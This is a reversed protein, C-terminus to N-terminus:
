DPWPLWLWYYTVFYLISDEIIKPYMWLIFINSLDNILGLSCKCFLSSHPHSNLPLLIYPRSFTGISPVKEVPKKLEVQYHETNNKETQLYTCQLLINWNSTKWKTHKQLHRVKNVRGRRVHISGLTMRYRITHYMENELLVIVYHILFLLDWVSVLNPLLWM